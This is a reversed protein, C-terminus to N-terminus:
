PSKETSRVQRRFWDVFQPLGDEIAVQPNYGLAQRAKSIEAFTCDVDGPQSPLRQLQPLVGLEAALLEVLRSLSVTRSEGLNFIDFRPSDAAELWSLAGLIGQLTDSIYTYDRRTSGDGFFPLPRSEALLAAFKHIALDPRQRPGYVTFFRLCAVSLGSLHHENFCILEGARKSAAYPSIPQDVPDSEAFPIKQNNGYVSSSSAFAVRRVRQTRCGLLLQLTGAVNVDHYLLPDAISPRVGAMAALHVVAAQSGEGLSRLARAVDDASRIDGKHVVLEAVATEATHRIAALNAQKIAPSYFDNFNDLLVVRRGQQLLAQCLHSGIFGAGGTVLVSTITTM